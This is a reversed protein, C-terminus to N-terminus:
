ARGAVAPSVPFVEDMRVWHFDELLRVLRSQMRDLNIYHRIRTKFSAGPIRPQEPDIEWPHFYFVCPRGEEEAVKQLHRRSLWYPLLRFYGGGGAPWNRGLARVSTIPIEMFGCGPLPHFAFRPAEPIGYLDHHIPYISSSYRYGAADLAEFAWLNNRTISFSAARYGNVATGGIDELIHKAETVDAFFEQRSQADARYHACGHSALEHGQAVIRRILGPYREAVWGLTFFTAHADARDLMELIREVNSEVRCKRSPWEDRSVLKFFAEVQFYDEVDVTLVHGKAPSVNAVPRSAWDAIADGERPAGTELSEPSSPEARM